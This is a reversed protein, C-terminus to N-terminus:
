EAERSLVQDTARECARQADERSEFERAENSAPTRRGQPSLYEGGADRIVYVLVPEPRIVEPAGYRSNEVRVEYGDRTLRELYSYPVSRDMESGGVYTVDYLNGDIRKAIATKSTHMAMKTEGGRETGEHDREGRCRIPAM